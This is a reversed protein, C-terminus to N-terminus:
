QATSVFAALHYSSPCERMLVSMYFEIQETELYLTILKPIVPCRELVFSLPFSFMCLVGPSFLAQSYIMKHVSSISFHTNDLQM